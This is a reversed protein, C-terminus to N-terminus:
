LNHLNVVQGNGATENGGQECSSFVLAMLFVWICTKPSFVASKVVVPFICIASRFARRLNGNSWTKMIM